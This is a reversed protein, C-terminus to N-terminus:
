WSHLQALCFNSLCKAAFPPEQSSIQCHFSRRVSSSSFRWQWPNCNFSSWFNLWSSEVHRRCVDLSVTVSSTTQTTCRQCRVSSHRFWVVIFHRSRILVIISLVKVPVALIFACLRLRRSLPASASRCATADPSSSLCCSSFLILSMWRPIFLIPSLVNLVVQVNLFVSRNSCCAGFLSNDEVMCTDRSFGAPPALCSRGSGTRTCFERGTPSPMVFKQTPHM